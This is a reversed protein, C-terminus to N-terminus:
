QSEAKGTGVPVPRELVEVIPGLREHATAQTRLAALEADVAQGMTLQGIERELPDGGLPMALTGGALLGDIAAARAQLRETREEARGVALGLEALEGSVGSLAEGVRVQAEAAGYRASIVRRRTRFEEIRAAFGQEAVTLRREEAAAETLHRELAELQIVAAHKRELAVRALDERGVELAKRAQHELDPVRARLATAQRQLQHKATVVEVLGQKVTRLLAEQETLAYDLVKRPDEAQDLAANANIRFVLLIRSWINM